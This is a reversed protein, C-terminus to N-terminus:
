SLETVKYKLGLAQGDCVIHVGQAHAHAHVRVHSGHPVRARAHHIGHRGLIQLYFIRIRLLYFSVKFNSQIFSFCLLSSYPIHSM